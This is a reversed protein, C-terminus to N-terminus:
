RALISQQSCINLIFKPPSIDPGEVGVPGSISRWFGRPRGTDLLLADKCAGSLIPHKTSVLHGGLQLHHGGGGLIQSLLIRTATVRVTVESRGVRRVQTGEQASSAVTDLLPCSPFVKIQGGTRDPM